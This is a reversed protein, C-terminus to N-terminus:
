KTDELIGELSRIPFMWEILTGGIHHEVNGDKLTVEARGSTIRLSSGAVERIPEQIDKFGKGRKDEGTRSRATLLAAEVLVEESTDRLKTLTGKLKGVTIRIKEALGSSPLTRAIGHGQDYIIIKLQSRRTDLVAAAWWRKGCSPYKLNYKELYAHNTANLMAEAMSVHLFDTQRFKEFIERVSKEFDEFKNEDCNLGSLLRIATRHGNIAGESIINVPEQDENKILNFVGLQRLLSIAENDDEISGQYHLEFGAIRRLRDIEAAFIVSCRVSIDSLEGLGISYRIPSTPRYKRRDIITKSLKKLETFFSITQHFSNDLSLVPPCIFRITGRFKKPVRTLRRLQIDRRIRSRLTRRKIIRLRRQKAKLSEFKM